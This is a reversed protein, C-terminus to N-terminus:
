RSVEPLDIESGGTGVMVTVTGPPANPEISALDGSSVSVRLRHGAHVRWDTPWMPVAFDHVAGAVVPTPTVSSLRHSARLWGSTIISSTGDPAVDELRVVLNGDTASLAARLHAVPAGLIVTDDQLPTSDFHLRGMDAVRQDNVPDDPATDVGRECICGTDFPNVPYPLSASPGPAPGLVGGADLHLTAMSPSSPIDPLEVWHGTHRPLEWSTVRAGPLPAAASGLLWHDFWALLASHVPPFNPLDPLFEGNAWPFMLLWSHSRAAQYNAVMGRPFLDHWGGIGLIPINSRDVAGTDIGRERWYADYTPHMDAEREWAVASGAMAAETAADQGPVASLATFFPWWRLVDGRIGGPYAFDTYLSSYSVIPAAAALHPPDTALARYTSIGGYSIGTEGVKGTSWPRTGFWEILDHNDRSEQDTFPAWVGPSGGSGRPSCMLTAYGRETFWRADDAMVSDQLVRYGFFDMMLAPVRDAIPAGDRAPRDLTCRLAVGDRVAVRVEEGHVTYAAPREYGLWAPAAGIPGDAAAAGAATCGWILLAILVLCRVRANRM